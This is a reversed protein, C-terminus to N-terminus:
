HKSTSWFNRFNGHQHWRLEGICYLTKANTRIATDSATTADTSAKGDVIPLPHAETNLIYKHLPVREAAEDDFLLYLYKFTEAFLWSPM